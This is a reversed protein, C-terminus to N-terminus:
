QFLEKNIINRIFESKTLKMVECIQTLAEFEATTVRLGITKTKCGKYGSM